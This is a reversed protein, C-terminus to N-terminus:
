FLILKFSLLPRAMAVKTIILVVHGPLLLILKLICTKMMMMMMDKFINKLLEDSFYSKQM